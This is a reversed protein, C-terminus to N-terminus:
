EKVGEVKEFKPIIFLLAAYTGLYAPIPFAIIAPFATLVISISVFSALIGLTWGKFIGYPLNYFIRIGSRASIFAVWLFFLLAPLGLKYGINWYYNSPAEITKDGFGKGILPSEYMENLTEKDQVIRGRYDSDDKLLTLITSGRELAVSFLSQGEFLQTTGSFYNIPFLLIIWLLLINLLPKFQKKNKRYMWLIFMLSVIVGLWLSRFFSLFLVVLPLIALLIISWKIKKSKLNFFLAILFPSVIAAMFDTLRYIISGGLLVRQSFDEFFYLYFIIEGLEILLIWSLSGVFVLNAQERKKIILTTMFFYSLFELIPFADALILRLDHGQFFGYAIGILPFTIFIILLKDIPTKIRSIKQISAGLFIAILFLFIYFFSIGARIGSKEWNLTLNTYVTYPNFVSILALLLYIDPRLIALLILACIGIALSLYLITDQDIVSLLGYSAIIASLIVGIVLIEKLSDNNFLGKTEITKIM